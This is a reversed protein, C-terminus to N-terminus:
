FSNANERIEDRNNWSAKFALNLHFKRSNLEKHGCGLESNLSLFIRRRTNVDEM